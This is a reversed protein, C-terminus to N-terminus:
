IGVGEYKKIGFRWVIKIAAYLLVLWLIEMGLGRLGDLLSLKGLYIQVPFYFNYVFPFALSINVFFAPLLNMPFYAGSLFKVAINLSYQPGGINITWFAIFGILISLFLRIFYGLFVMAAVLLVSIIGAPALVINRFLFILIGSMIVGALLSLSVRGLSLVSVYKLYSVPKLLFNSLTGRHIDRAINDEFGYSSTLFLILWGILVYSIMERYTYGSVITQSQFVVTWIILQASIELLNALRFGIYDFRYTLMRQFETKIIASYKKFM